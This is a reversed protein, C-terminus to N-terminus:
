IKPHRYPIGADLCEFYIDLLYMIHEGNDGDGGATFCFFDGGFNFDLYDLAKYIEESKPHHDTGEEWRKTIDFEVTKAVPPDAPLDGMAVLKEKAIRKQEDNGFALDYRLDAIVQTVKTPRRKDGKGNQSM